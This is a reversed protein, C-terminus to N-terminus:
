GPLRSDRYARYYTWANQDAERELDQLPRGSSHHNLYVHALEHGLAYRKTISSIGSNIGILFEDETEVTAGHIKDPFALYVIRITKNNHQM